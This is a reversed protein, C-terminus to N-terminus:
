ATAPCDPYPLKCEPCERLNYLHYGQYDTYSLGTDLIKDNLSRAQLYRKDILHCICENPFRRQLSLRQKELESLNNM